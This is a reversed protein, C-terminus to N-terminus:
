REEYQRLKRHLTAVGIGLERAAHTRNQDHAQLVALIHEREVDALRRPAPRRQAKSSPAATALGQVEEPLDRPEVLEGRSLAAAREMANGLERVNGPWPHRVILEAAEPSLGEVRRRLREAATALLARALPLVDERRERLPALRLEIVRLRYYLDSRFAGADVMAALDRNTAAIVRVDVSRGQNEGVRRVEREQLTRLLKVQMGPSVEGIEDLLLTGGHAAEFLGPRDHTAGTFAGRRHGFLESELLTEVVAGCNVAVFPGERRPSREHIYRAVREKGTGSEGTVLVTSDVEAVRAALELTRRMSASVAILGSPDPAEGLLRALARRKGRLRQEVQKLAATVADLEAALHAERAYPMARRAAEDWAERPRGLARCVDDGCAVCRDEVVHHERGTVRSIYGSALGCLTWCVPADARGLHLLHQEAEYSGRWIVGDASGPGPGSEARLLGQLMCVVSGARGWDTSSDWRFRAGMTEALRFGHAFGFRMLVGRAGALGLTEILEKRLLGLAVADFILAREGAFRVAAADHDVELLDRLSLDEVRM